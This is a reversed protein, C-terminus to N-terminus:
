QAAFNSVLEVQKDTFRGVEQRYINIVGVLTNDKLMPVLLVTRYGGLEAGAVSNPDRDVYAQTTRIDDVHTVRKTRLIQGLGSEPHPSVLPTRRWHEVLAPPGNHLSVRRFQDGETLLLSALKAECLRTANALMANFIPELEGTSGAIVRLVEDTAAQRELAESLQREAQALRRELDSASDQAM